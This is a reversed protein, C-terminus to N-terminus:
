EKGIGSAVSVRKLWGVLWGVLWSVFHERSGVDDSSALKEGNGEASREQGGAGLVGAGQHLTSSELGEAAITGRGLAPRLLRFPDGELVGPVGVDGGSELRASLEAHLVVALFFGVVDLLGDLLDRGLTTDLGFEDEGNDHLLGLSANAGRGGVVAEVVRSEHLGELALARAVGAALTNDGAGVILDLAHNRITGTEVALDTELPSDLLGAALVDVLVVLSRTDVVGTGDGGIAVEVAANGGVAIGSVNGVTENAPGVGFSM